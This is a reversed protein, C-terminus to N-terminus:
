SLTEFMAALADERGGSKFLHKMASDEDAKAPNTPPPATSKAPQAPAIKQQAKPAVKKKSGKARRAKRGEILDGIVMNAEALRDVEPFAARIQQAEAFENSEANALWPFAETAAQDFDMRAKVVDARKLLKRHVKEAGKRIKGVDAADYVTESGDANTITAGDEHEDAWEITEEARDYEERWENPSSIREIRDMISEPKKAKPEDKQQKLSNVQAELESLKERLEHKEASLKDVRKKFKPYEFEAPNADPEADGEADAEEAEAEPEQENVQDQSLVPQEEVDSSAEPQEEVAEPEDFFSALEEANRPVKVEDGNQPTPSSAKNESM